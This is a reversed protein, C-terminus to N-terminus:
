EELIHLERARIVADAVNNVGLKEYAIRTYSKITNVSLGTERIIDDRKYGKSMLTIVMKQQNSLKVFPQETDTAIGKKQRSTAYAAIYVSNVYISSLLTEYTTEMQKLIKRLMAVVAAGENAIIRIFSHPQLMILVSRVLEVAMTREGQLWLAVAKLTIAEATDQTRSLKGTFVVLMESLRIAKTYKGVMIYARITTIQLYILHAAPISYEDFSYLTLWEEAATIDGDLMRLNSCFALYNAHMSDSSKSIELAAELTATLKSDQGMVWQVSAQLMYLSFRFEKPTSLTFDAAVAAIQSIADSLRNQELLLGPKILKMVMNDSIGFILNNMRIVELYTAEDTLECFDRFSRHIFPLGLTTVVLDKDQTNESQLDYKSLTQMLQVMPTTYDLLTMKVAIEDFVPFDEIIENLREIHMTIYEEFKVIDGSLLAIYAIVALVVPYEISLQELEDNPFLDKLKLYSDIDTREVTTIFYHLVTMFLNREESQYAYEAATLPNDSALFYTATLASVETKDMAIYEPLQRLFDLFIRNFQYLDDGLYRVFISQMRLEDLLVKTERRKTISEALPLYIDDIVALAIVFDQTQKDQSDWIESRIYRYIWDPSLNSSCIYERLIIPWGGTYSFISEAEHHSLTYGLLEGYEVIEDSSFSLEEGSISNAQFENMYETLHKNADSRSLILTVFSHALRRLIYPLTEHIEPNKILHYDDIILTYETGDSMFANLLTIVHEVPANAFGESKMIEVIAMNKPQLAEIASAFLRYFIAPTNDYSDLQIYICKRSNAEAWLLATITKGIGAPGSMFVLHKKAIRDLHTNLETRALTIEPLRRPIFKNNSGTIIRDM